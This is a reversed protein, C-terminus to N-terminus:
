SSPKPNPGYTNSGSRSDQVTFVLLVITGIIPIFGILWWWGTRGTDHLRRITVGISPLLMALLFIGTLLGTGEVLDGTGIVSDVIALVIAILSSFLVFYWYEKRRSRGSFVAYKKVAEIFCSM